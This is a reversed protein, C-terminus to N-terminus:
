CSLPSMKVDTVNVRFVAFFAESDTVLSGNILIAITNVGAGSNM